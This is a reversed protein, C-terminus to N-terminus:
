IHRVPRCALPDSTGPGPGATFGSERCKRRMLVEDEESRGTGTVLPWRRSAGPPNQLSCM